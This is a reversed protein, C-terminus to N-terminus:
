KKSIVFAEAIMCLTWPFTLQVLEHQVYRQANIRQLKAEFGNARRKNVASIGELVGWVLPVILLSSADQPGVMNGMMDAIGGGGGGRGDGDGDRGFGWWEWWKRDGDLKSPGGRFIGVAPMTEDTEAERTLSKQLRKALEELAVSVATDWDDRRLYPKMM